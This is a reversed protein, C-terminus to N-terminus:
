SRARRVTETHAARCAACPAEGRRNHRRYAAETGCPQPAAWRRPLPARVAARQKPSRGGWCGYPDDAGAAACEARVPCGFCILRAEDYSEGAHDAYFVDTMGRCAARAHWAPRLSDFLDLLEEFTTPATLPRVQVAYEGPMVTM